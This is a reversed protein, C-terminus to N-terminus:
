GLGTRWTTASLCVKSDPQLRVPVPNRLLARVALALAPRYLQPALPPHQSRVASRTRAHAQAASLCPGALGDSCLVLLSKDLRSDPAQSHAAAGRDDAPPHNSLFQDYAMPCHEPVVGTGLPWRMSRADRLQGLGTSLDLSHDPNNDRVSNLIRGLTSWLLQCGGRDTAKEEETLPPETPGRLGLAEWQSPEHWDHDLWRDNHRQVNECSEVLRRTAAPTFIGRFIAVGDRMFAEEDWQEQVRRWDLIDERALGEATHYPARFEEPVVLGLEDMRQRYQTDLKYDRRQQTLPRAPAGGSAGVVHHVLRELRGHSARRAPM